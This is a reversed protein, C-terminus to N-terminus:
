EERTAALQEQFMELHGKAAGLAEEAVARASPAEDLDEVCRQIYEVTRQQYEVLLKLLYDIDLDHYGTFQMPFEGSAVEGDNELVMEGFKDVYQAHQDAVLQLVKGAESDRSNMWPVAFQLYAPLSRHHLVVLRNLIENTRSANMDRAM